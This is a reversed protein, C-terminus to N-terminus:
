ACRGQVAHVLYDPDGAMLACFADFGYAGDLPGPRGEPHYQLSFARRDLYEVGECTGDNLNVHTLRVRGVEPSLAVPAVGREAWCRLDAEHSTRGGSEGPVLPGFSPFDVAYNHNQATVECTRTLLNMVPENGGHHGYALKVTRAGAALAMVQHGLCIGFTPVRGLLGRACAVVGPVSAPDGPGNSLFVGDAGLALVDAATADWPLTHVTLGRAALGAVIGAKQGCDVAAVSRGCGAAPTETWPADCSVAAVLDREAIPPQARVLAVLEDPDLVETSVGAAMAGGGRVALTVARTDVGEVAVVGHRALYSPLTERSRWHSPTRCADAVVLASLAPRAAESAEPSIGYNGQQPYTLCVVQGAYSPDTAIEQYGAMSTNFVIEGFATGPAGCSHGRHWTGDALALLAPMPPTPSALPNM